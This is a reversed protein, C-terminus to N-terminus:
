DSRFGDVSGVVVWREAEDGRFRAGARHRAVRFGWRSLQKELTRDPAPSWVALLGDPKLARRARSIGESRYLRHNSALSLHERGNDVDLVIADFRGPTGLLVFVDAIQITVRPDRLAGSARCGLAERNWDVVEPVREVVLVSADPPLIELAARLTFGLGLGGILVHPSERGSLPRCAIEALAEASFVARSSVLELGDARIEYVGNREHLVLETGDDAIARGLTEPPLNGGEWSFGIGHPKM